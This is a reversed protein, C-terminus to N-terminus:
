KLHSKLHFVYIPLIQVLAFLATLKIRLFKEDLLVSILSVTKLLSTRADRSIRNLNLIPYM